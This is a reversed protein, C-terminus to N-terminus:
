SSRYTTHFGFRRLAPYGVRETWVNVAGPHRARLSAAAGLVSDAIAWDGSDVDITVFEGHHTAEDIQPLADRRYIEQGLRAIEETSLTPRLTTGPEAPWESGATPQASVPAPADDSRSNPTSM